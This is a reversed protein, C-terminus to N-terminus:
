RLHREITQKWLGQADLLLECFERVAGRGGASTTIWHACRLVEPHSNSVAVAFGARMLVPLDVLDDGVYAAQEASIGTESLLALFASLKDRTGQIVHAVGLEAMRRAVAPSRRASIVGLAIGCASLMVMGHGDKVDFVKMEQGASDFYLRGDTLVGDVDFLALRIRAARTRLAEPLALVSDLM